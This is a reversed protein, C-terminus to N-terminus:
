HLLSHILCYVPMREDTHSTTEILLELVAVARERDVNKDFDRMEHTYTDNHTATEILDM